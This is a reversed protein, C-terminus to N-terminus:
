RGMEKEWTIFELVTRSFLRCCTGGLQPEQLAPQLRTVSCGFGGFFGLCKICVIEKHRLICSKGSSERPTWSSALALLLLFQQPLRATGQLPAAWPPSSGCKGPSWPEPSLPEPPIQWWRCATCALCSQAPVLPHPIWQCFFCRSLILRGFCESHVRDHGPAPDPSPMSCHCHESAEEMGSVCSWNEVQLCPQYCRGARSLFTLDLPLLHRALAVENM